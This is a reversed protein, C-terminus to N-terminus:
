IIVSEPLEIWQAGMFNTNASTEVYDFVGLSGEGVIIPPVCAEQASWEYAYNWGGAGATASAILAGGIPRWFEYYNGSSQSTGAATVKGLATCLSAIPADTRMNVITLATGTVAADYVSSAVAFADATISTLITDEVTIRLYTPIMVINNPVSVWLHPKTLDTTGAPDTQVIPTTATGSECAFGRGELVLATYWDAVYAAGDRTGRLGIPTGESTRGVNMQQAFVRADSM